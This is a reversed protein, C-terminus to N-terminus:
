RAVFTGPFVYADEFPFEVTAFDGSAANPYGSLTTIRVAYTVGNELSAPDILVSNTSSYYVAVSTLTTNNNGDDGIVMLDVRSADAKGPTDTWELLQPKSRDVVFVLNDADLAVGALTAQTPLGVEAPIISPNTCSAAPMVFHESANAGLIPTDGGYVLPRDAYVTMGLVPVHGPFPIAYGVTENANSTSQEFAIQL